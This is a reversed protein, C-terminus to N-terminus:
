QNPPNRNRRMGQHGMTKLQLKKNKSFKMCTYLSIHDYKNWEGEMDWGSYGGGTEMNQNPNNKQYSM